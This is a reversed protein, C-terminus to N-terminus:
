EDGFDAGQGVIDIEQALVEHVLYKFGRALYPFFERPLQLPKIQRVHSGGSIRADWMASATNLPTSSSFMTKGKM